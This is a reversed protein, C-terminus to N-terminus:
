RNILQNSFVLLIVIFILVYYVYTQGNGTYIRRIFNFFSFLGEGINHYIDSMKYKYLPSLAREFPKYFDLAYHYNDEARIPEGSNSIDKTTVYRTNKRGKLMVYLAFFIFVGMVIMSMLSLDISDGYTNTLVSMEMSVNSFGMYQNMANAIPELVIGPFTGTVVLLISFLLMPILMLVPAEKVHEFEPEEQGLFIGYLFRYCYLFAATSSFFIVIVLFYHDSSILAEYLMWKGVFGGLPPIGALAIISIMATLFTLPMKRILARLKHFDTTGAQKEIAGAVMFLAGKFLAHLVALYIAAMFALPTGIAIGTIIYGLQAVSSYALLKKADRQIIAYLTALVATIAGLWALIENFITHESVMALKIVVLSLGYVGMKSLVGSFLSTYSMPANSYADAAWIHLPMMAAKVGFGLTMLIIILLQSNYDFGGFNTFIETWLLSPTQVKLLVIATLMAYAGLASFLIYTIGIKQTKHGNYVVIFYSSWTMIEWFIFFSVLDQSMLIGTMAGLGLLFNLYFYGLNKKGKMYPISYILSAGGMLVVLMEFIYAFSTLNWVLDFGAINFGFEEFQPSLFFIAIPALGTIAVVLDRLMANVRNTFFVLIAGVFYILLILVLSNM